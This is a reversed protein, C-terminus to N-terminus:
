SQELGIWMAIGAAIDFLIGVVALAFSWDLRYSISVMTVGYVIVGTLGLVAAVFATAVAARGVSIEEFLGCLYFIMLILVLVMGVLTFIELVAAAILSGKENSADFYQYTDYCRGSVSVCTHFLGKYIGGNTSAGWNPSALAILTFLVAISQVVVAVWICQRLCM